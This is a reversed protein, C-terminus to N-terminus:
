VHVCVYTYTLCVEMLTFADDYAMVPSASAEFLEADDWRLGQLGTASPDFSKRM